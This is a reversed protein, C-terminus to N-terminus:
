LLWLAPVKLATSHGQQDATTARIAPCRTLSYLAGVYLRSKALVYCINQWMMLILNAVCPFENPPGFPHLWWRSVAPLLVVGVFLLLLFTCLTNARPPVASMHHLWVKLADIHRAIKGDMFGYFSNGMKCHTIVMQRRATQALADKSVSTKIGGVKWFLARRRRSEFNFTQEWEAVDRSKQLPLCLVVETLLVSCYNFLDWFLPELRSLKRDSACVLQESFHMRSTSYYVLNVLNARAIMFGIQINIMVNSLTFPPATSCCLASPMHLGLACSHLM